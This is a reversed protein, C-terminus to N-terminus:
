NKNELLLRCVLDRRSQLESTHEESREVLERARPASRKGAVVVFGARRLSRVTCCPPLAKRPRLVRHPRAKRSPFFRAVGVRCGPVVSLAPPLRPAGPCSHAPPVRTGAHPVVPWWCPNKTPHASDEPALASAPAVLAFRPTATRALSSAFRCRPALPKSEPAMRPM